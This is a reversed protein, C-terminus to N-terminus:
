CRTRINKKELLLRCVLYALSQLESTHEESRLGHGQLYKSIASQRAESSPDNSTNLYVVLPATAPKDASMLHLKSRGLSNLESGSFHHAYLMGDARAGAAAQMALMRDMDRMEHERKFHTQSVEKRCGALLLGFAFALLVSKIRM